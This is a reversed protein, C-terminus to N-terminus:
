KKISYIFAGQEYTNHFRVSNKRCTKQWRTVSSKYNSGDAIILKPNLTKILQELHIKPSNRLLVWDFRETKFDFIGIEDVILLHRGGISYFRKMHKNSNKRIGEKAIYDKIFESPIDKGNAEQIELTTGNRIGIISNKMKHFVIFDQTSNTNYLFAVYLQLGLVAICLYLVKVATKRNLYSILLTIILYSLVMQIEDYSINKFIFIDFNSIWKTIKNMLEILFEFGDILQKNLIKIEAFLVIFLGIWLCLTLTPIVLLNSIFFLIPFQNFYYLSLPLVGIQAAFSVKILSAIPNLLINKPNWIKNLIPMLILIGLVATYSLQFGVDFVINPDILLVVLASISLTNISNTQRNLGQALAFFSFMTVARVISPSLGSIFAFGWLVIIVVLRRIKKGNRFNLLPYLLVGLISLLIGVHLGSLALIHIVGSDRYNVKINEPIENRKGLYFAKLFGAATSNIDLADIKQEIYHRAKAARGKISEKGKLHAFKTQSNISIQHFIGKRALYDKYSFAHPNKPSNILKPEIKIRLVEDVELPSMISDNLTQILITGNSKNKNIQLVKAMYRYSYETPNMEHTIRLLLENNNKKLFYSYHKIDTKPNHFTSTLVGTIVFLLMLLLTAVDYKHAKSKYHFYLVAVFLCLGCYILNNLTLPNQNALRVGIILGVTLRAIPYEFFQM